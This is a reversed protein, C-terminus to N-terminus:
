LRTHLFISVLYSIVQGSAILDLPKQLLVKKVSSDELVKTVSCHLILVCILNDSVNPLPHRMCCIHCQYGAQVFAGLALPNQWLHLCWLIPISPHFISSIVTSLMGSKQPFHMAVIEFSFIHNFMIYSTGLLVEFLIEPYSWFKDNFNYHNVLALTRTESYFM